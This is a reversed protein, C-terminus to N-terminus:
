PSLPTATDEYGVNGSLIPDYVSQANVVGWAEIRPNIREVAIDLNNALAREICESLTLSKIPRAPENTTLAAALLLVPIMASM